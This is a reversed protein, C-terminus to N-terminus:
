RVTKILKKSSNERSILDNKSLLLSISKKGNKLKYGLKKNKLDKYIVSDKVYPIKFILEIEHSQTGITTVQIKDIILKLLNNKQIDSFKSMESIEYGFEGVWDVWASKNEFSHIEQEIVEKQAQVELRASEVNEIISKLEQKSRRKLILDTELDIINKTYDKIQTSVKNLKVKLKRIDEQQEEHTKTSGMIKNKVEEKFIYSKSLVDVVTDWVLKDTDEIKLYRRNECKTFKQTSENVYNREIRPCYYVSRNQQPYYRGSYRSGCQSCFLLERLLYFKKINSEVVRTQRTRNKKEQHVQQILNSTLIQPCNCRIIKDTTKDKVSYYGAYHTNSLLKELSGLSWVKNGRRTKVGNKLLENKIYRVSKKDKYNEFIFKVWKKEETEPILKKAKIQYGFPPPGGLWYGQEIRKIKGLRTRETRLHNDFSSIESMIGLILRDQATELNYTGSSHYLTVGYKRLRLRIFSWTNENRSLRDTNYVYVNRVEGSEIEKLLETLKPRNKLDDNSSSQGGENWIKPTFGLEKAKQKGLKIQSDISTGDEEQASSSVRTYIHLIQQM